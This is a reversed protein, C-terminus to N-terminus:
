DDSLKRELSPIRPLSIRKPKAIRTSGLRNRDPSHISVKHPDDDAEDPIVSLPRWDEPKDGPFPVTVTRVNVPQRKPPPGYIEKDLDTELKRIQRSHVPPLDPLLAADPKPRLATFPVAVPPPDPPAPEDSAQPAPDCNPAGPPTLRLLLREEVARKCLAHLDADMWGRKKRHRVAMDLSALKNKENPCGAAVAVRRWSVDLLADYAASAILIQSESRYALLDENVPLGKAMAYTAAAYAVAEVPYYSM